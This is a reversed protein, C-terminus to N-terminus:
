MEGLFSAKVYGGRYVKAWLSGDKAYRWGLVSIKSGPKIWCLLRGAPTERKALPGECIVRYMTEPIDKEIYSADVFGEQGKFRIHAWGKDIGDVDVEYGYRIQGIQRGDYSPESRIWVWEGRHVVCTYIGQSGKMPSSDRLSQPTEARAVKVTCVMAAVLVVAMLAMRMVLVYASYIGKLTLGEDQEVDFVIDNTRRRIAM